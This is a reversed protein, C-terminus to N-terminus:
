VRDRRGNMYNGALAAGPRTMWGVTAIGLGVAATGVLGGEPGFAGGTLWTPGTGAVDYLPVDWGGIGSVPLDLPGAMVWNWGVHVASAFWLTGTRLVALGLLIGALFINVLGFATVNPNSGHVATFLVSTVGVALVSGGGEVLTRFLYGRFVAEEAAAPIAFAALSIGSVALWGGVSGPEPVYRYAGAAALLLVPTALVGAGVAVGAGLELPVRRRLAFGLDSLPRHDVWRFMAWGALIAAVLLFFGQAILGPSLQDESAPLRALTPLLLLELQLIVLFLAVFLLARWLARLRDDRVFWQRWGDGM